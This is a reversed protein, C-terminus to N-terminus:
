RQTLKHLESTTMERGAISRNTGRGIFVLPLMAPRSIVVESRCLSVCRHLHTHGLVCPLQTTKEICRKCYAIESLEDKLYGRM